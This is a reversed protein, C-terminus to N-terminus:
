LGLRERIETLAMLAGEAFERPGAFEFVAAHGLPPATQEQGRRQVSVGARSLYLAAIDLRAVHSESPKAQTEAVNLPAASLRAQGAQGVEPLQRQRTYRDEFPLM